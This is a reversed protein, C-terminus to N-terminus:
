VISINKVIDEPTADYAMANVLDSYRHSVGQKIKAITETTSMGSITFTGTIESLAGQTMDKTICESDACVMQDAMGFAGCWRCWMHERVDMMQNLM